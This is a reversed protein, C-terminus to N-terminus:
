GANDCNGVLVMVKVDCWDLNASIDICLCVMDLYAEAVWSGFVAVDAIDNRPCYNAL